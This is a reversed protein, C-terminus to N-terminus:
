SFRLEMDQVYEKIREFSQGVCIERVSGGEIGRRTYYKGSSGTGEEEELKYQLAEALYETRSKTM